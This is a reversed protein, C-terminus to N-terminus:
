LDDEEEEEFNLGNDNAREFAQPKVLGPIAQKRTDEKEQAEKLAMEREQKYLEDQDEGVFEKLWVLFDRLTNVFEKKDNWKNFMNLVFTQIQVKNTNTYLKVMVDSLFEIVYEKNSSYNESLKGEFMQNEVVAIMKMIILAQKYFGSKHLSDTLVYFADQLIVMYFNQFFVNAISQNSVVKSLLENMTDLGIEALEIQYHKIAWLISDIWIKFNDENAEFLGELAYDVINKILTFFNRRFDMFDTYNDSIMSLTSEFLWSLIDPIHQNMKEEMKKILTAFLLLVEPDRASPVNDNYDTILESLKPLFDNIIMDPDEVNKIFTAILNLIERRVTKTAKFISVDYKANNSIVYSINKSYLKYVQLLELFIKCLHTYYPHGLAYAVRENAKIVFGITRIVEYDQLSSADKNALSLVENWSEQTYQMLNELLIERKQSDKEESVMHAIGEYLHLCQKIELERSNDKLNRILNWVFPEENNDHSQVFMHKTKKSIKLFVETAMDQVGPHKEHMLENLKKIVTKLFAWHTCLFRPFQGVVYMIDAAVLAKNNKGKKKEVLNLLEKIITVVFKNEEDEMMCESISGLAWCLKNLADFTFTRDDSLLDELKSTMINYVKKSDINTLYVQNARMMNSLSVTESDTILEEVANGNEDIVVLVEEPKAMNEIMTECLRRCCEPFTVTRLPSSQVLRDNQLNMLTIDGTKAFMEKGKMTVLIYYTFEHWFEMMVRFLEDNPINSLQILYDLSKVVAIQLNATFPNPNNVILNEVKEIQNKLFESLLLGLQLCFVEFHPKQNENVIKHEESLVKDKTVEVTKEVFSTFLIYQKETYDNCKPDDQDIKLGAIEVLWPLTDNRFAPVVFFSNLLKDLIDTEFIYGFPIWSLFSAFTKLCSKVLARKVAGSNEIYTNLVFVCLEYISAFEETMNEKLENAKNSSIENKSFDFIEESLLKLINLTNECLGQHTRSAQCIEPIFDKWTTTWEHKVISVLTQNLKTLLHKGTTNINDDKGMTIVLNTIFEKIGNKQDAPLVKWKNKVTSELVNLAIFKTNNSNSNELIIDVHQWSDGHQQFETLIENAQSMVSQDTSYLATVIEDLLAVKRENFPIDTNLLDKPGLTGEM